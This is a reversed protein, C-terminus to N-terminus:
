YLNLPWGSHMARQLNRKKKEAALRLTKRRKRYWPLHPVSKQKRISTDLFGLTTSETTLPLLLIM